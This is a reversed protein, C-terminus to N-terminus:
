YRKPIGSEPKKGTAPCLYRVALRWDSGEKRWADVISYQKDGNTGLASYLATDGYDHVAEQSFSFRTVPQGLWEERPVPTGPEACLREEFDSTLFAARATSSEASALKKELSGFQLVTRTRVQVQALGATCLLLVIGVVKFPCPKLRAALRAIEKKDRNM